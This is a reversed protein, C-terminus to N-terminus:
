AVGLLGWEVFSSSHVKSCLGRQGVCCMGVRPVLGLEKAQGQGLAKASATGEAMPEEELDRCVQSVEECNVVAWKGMKSKESCLELDKWRSASYSM